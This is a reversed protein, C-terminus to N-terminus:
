AVSSDVDKTAKLNPNPTFHTLVGTSPSARSRVSSANSDFSERLTRQDIVVIPLFAALFRHDDIDPSCDSVGRDFQAPSERHDLDDELIPWGDNLNGLRVFCM